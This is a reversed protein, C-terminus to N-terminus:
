KFMDRKSITSRGEVERRTDSSQLSTWNDKLILREIYASMTTGCERAKVRLMESVDPSLTITQVRKKRGESAM